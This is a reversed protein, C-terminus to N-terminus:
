VSKQFYLEPRTRIEKAIDKFTLGRDNMNALSLNGEWVKPDGTSGYLGMLAVGKDPVDANSCGEWVLVTNSWEPVEILAKESLMQCLVGLCCYQKEDGRVRCLYTKGQVYNGSELRELWETQLPGLEM